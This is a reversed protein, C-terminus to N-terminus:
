QEDMVKDPEEPEEPEGIDKKLPSFGDNEDFEQGFKWGQDAMYKLFKEENTLVKEPEEPEDPARGFKWGLDAMHMLFKEEDTLSKKVPTAVATATSTKCPTAEGDADKEASDSSTETSTQPMVPTAGSFPQSSSASSSLGSKIGNAVEQGQKRSLSKAPSSTQSTIAEMAVLFQDEFLHKGHDYEPKRNLVVKSDCEPCGDEGFVDEFFWHGEECVAFEKAHGYRGFRDEVRRVNTIDVTPITGVRQGEMVLQLLQKFHLATVYFSGCSNPFLNSIEVVLDLIDLMEQVEELGDDSAEDIEEVVLTENSMKGLSYDVLLWLHIQRLHLECYLAPADECADMEQLEKCYRRSAEAGHTTTQLLIESMRQTMLTPDTLSSLHRAMRLSDVVMAASLRLGIISYRLQMTMNYPFASPM